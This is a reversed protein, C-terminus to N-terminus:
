CVTLPVVVTSSSAPRYQLHQKQARTSHGHWHSAQAATAAEQEAGQLPSWAWLHWGHRGGKRGQQQLMSDGAWSVPVSGGSINARWGLRSERSSEPLRNWPVSGLEYACEFTPLQHSWAAAPNCSVVVRLYGLSACAACCRPAPVPLPQWPVAATLEHTAKCTARETAAAQHVSLKAAMSGSRTSCAEVSWNAWLGFMVPGAKGAAQSSAPASEWRSARSRDPQATVPM